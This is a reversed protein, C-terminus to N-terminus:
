HIISKLIEIKLKFETLKSEIKDNMESLQQNKLSIDKEDIMQNNLNDVEVYLEMIEYKLKLIYEYMCNREYNIQEKRLRDEMHNNM